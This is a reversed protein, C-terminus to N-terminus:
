KVLIDCMFRSLKKDKLRSPKFIRFDQKKYSEWLQEIALLSSCIKNQNQQSKSCIELKTESVSVSLYIFQLSGERSQVMLDKEIFFGLFIFRFM